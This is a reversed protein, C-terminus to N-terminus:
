MIIIIIIIVFYQGFKGIIFSLVAGIQVASSASKCEELM